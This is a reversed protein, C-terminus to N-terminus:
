TRPRLSDVSVLAEELADQVAEADAIGASRSLRRLANVASTGGIKGLAGIAAQRVETDEEAALDALALVARDDGLEGSARAAEFRMEEDPSEFEHMVVDLWNTDLSRGMAYIAGVRLGADDADYADRILDVIEDRRGFVAVSELARRRVVYPERADDAIAVLTERLRDALGPDLKEDAAREAFRGLGQAAEARVDQSPDRDALDLLTAVLDSGEDEWLAAVALQRVVASPDSLAVRLARGFVYEVNTEALESLSRVVRERQDDTFTPWARAFAAADARGLDSLPVLDRPSFDGRGIARIADAPTAQDNPRQEPSTPTPMQDM